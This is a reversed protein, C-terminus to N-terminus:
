ILGRLIAPAIDTLYRSMDADDGRQDPREHWLAQYAIRLMSTHEPDVFIQAGTGAQVKSLPLIAAGIGIMAWEQLVRYSMAQGSYEQLKLKSRRFIARTTKTLGCADPVMVFTEVAIDALTVDKAAGQGKAIYVLPEDHLHVSRWHPSPQADIDVPGFVYELQGLALLSTMESLNMERFVIEATPHDRRFPDMILDVLGIGMLPSVGIRILARDPQVLQRAKAVLTAQANLVEHITPMLDQGFETLQVKRTTRAFLPRGLENELQAIGNSLTPQSVNCREAALHFASCDALARAYRLQQLNMANADRENM